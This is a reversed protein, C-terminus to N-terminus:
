RKLYRVISILISTIISLINAQNLLIQMSVLSLQTSTMTVRPTWNKTTWFTPYNRCHSFISQPTKIWVQSAWICVQWVQCIELKLMFILSHKLIQSWQLDVLNLGELNSHPEKPSFATVRTWTLSVKEKL